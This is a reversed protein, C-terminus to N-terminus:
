DEGLLPRYAKKEKPTFGAGAAKRALALILNAELPIFRLMRRGPTRSKKYLLWLWKRSPSLGARWIVKEQHLNLLIQGRSADLVKITKATVCLIKEPDALFAVKKVPGDPDQWSLLVRGAADLVALDGVRDSYAIRKGDKRVDFSSLHSPFGPYHALLKGKRDLLFIGAKRSFACIKGGPLFSFGFVSRGPLAHFLVRGKRDFCTVGRSPFGAALFSNGGPAYLFARFGRRPSSFLPKVGRSSFSFGVLSAVPKKGKRYLFVQSVFEKRAPSFAASIFRGELTGLRRWGVGPGLWIRPKDDKSSLLFEEGKPNGFIFIPSKCPLPISRITRGDIRNELIKRGEAILHYSDGRGHFALPAESPCRTFFLPAWEPQLDWIRATGDSSCTFCTNGELFGALFLSDEHGALRCREEGVPTWLRVDGDKAGTLLFRGERSFAAVTAPRRHAYWHLVGPRGTQGNGAEGEGLPLLYVEGSNLVLAAQREGPSFIFHAGELHWDKRFSRRRGKELDLIWFTDRGQIGGLFRGSPSLRVGRIYAPLPLPPAAPSAGEDWAQFRSPAGLVAWFWGKRRAFGYSLLGSDSLFTRALVKGDPGTVQLFSKREGGRETEEVLLLLRKGERSFWAGRFRPRSSSRKGKGAQLRLLPEGAMSRVLLGREGALLIRRGGPSFSLVRAGSPGLFSLDKRSFSLVRRGKMDYVTPLFNRDPLALFKGGPSVPRWDQYRVEQYAIPICAREHHALLARLVHSLSPLGPRMEEAKLALLLSLRPNRSLNERSSSLLAAWRVQDYAKGLKRLLVTTASLGVLLALFIGALSTALIPNRQAWRSTKLLPGAPRVQVPEYTRVRRLDEALELATGYRRAPNRDLAKGLVLGLDKPVAPNFERPGPYRGDRINQKLEELTEGDFPPRLTLAEYLTAGLSYIDGRRDPPTKKGVLREPPLYHPTGVLAMSLTLDKSPLATERALGFDLLVPNGRQDIMINAPKIDRHVLGAEHAAHLTRAVKEGLHVLELVRAKGPTTGASRADRIEEALTRGQVLRMAMYPFGEVEGVEYVPCIGPHDLRAAARAERRFRERAEAQFLLTEQRLIKLAVRRNLERDEALFVVGMGGRGLKELLVYKGFRRPLSFEKEM